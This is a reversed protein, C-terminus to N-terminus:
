STAFHKSPRGPAYPFSRTEVPGYMIAPAGLTFIEGHEVSL